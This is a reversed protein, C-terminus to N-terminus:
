SDTRRSPLRLREEAGRAIEAGSAEDYLVLELTYTGAPLDEPLTLWRRDRIPRGPDWLTPPAFGYGPVKDDQVLPADDPGADPDRLRLSLKLDRRPTSAPWWTLSVQLSDGEREALLDHIELDPARLVPADEPPDATIEGGHKLRLPGFYAADIARDAETRAPLVDGEEDLVRLRLFYAGPATDKPIELAINLGEGLPETVEAVIDPVGHLPLAPSVLAIEVALDDAHESWAPSVLLTGGTTVPGEDGSTTLGILVADGFALGDPHSHPWPSLPWDASVLTPGDAGRVGTPLRRAAAVSLGLVLAAGLLFRWASGKVAPAALLLTSLLLLAALSLLEASARVPSRALWLRLTHTGRPVNVRLWGTGPEAAVPLPTGEDLAYVWGPFALTPFVLVAEEQDGEIDIQWEQAAAEHRLLTASALTGTLARPDGERGLVLDIGTFPRPQVAGPLYEARVTSGINGSLLEFAQVDGHTPPAVAIIEPRLGLMAGGALLLCLLATLSLSAPTRWRAPLLRAAAPALPGALLALALAQVSLWRWPFQAFPLLPTVSWIPASLPTIMFSTLLAAGGWFVLAQRRLGRWWGLGLGLLALLLQLLGTAVPAGAEADYDYPLGVRLLDFGLFHNRYDFYGSTSEALRVLDREALAPLWFWAALGAGLVLSAGVATTPRGLWRLALWCRAELRALGVGLDVVWEAPPGGAGARARFRRRLSELDLPPRAAAGPGGPVSPVARRGFSAWLRWLGYATLLPLFLVASINHALLLLATAVALAAARRPGPRSVLADLALLLWPFVAYAALEALADGRAYVNVMHYPAFTYSAATLVGAARSGWTDRGLRWAGWGAAVFCLAQSVKVAGVVGGGLAAVLGGWLYILPAYYNWFPYGLGYAADPMWRPPLHRDSLALAMQHMRLLNFPSDGAARTAVIGQAALAPALALLALGVVILWPLFAGLGAL